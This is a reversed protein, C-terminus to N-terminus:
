KEIGSLEREYPEDTQDAALEFGDKAFRQDFMILVDRLDDDLKALTRSRVEHSAEEIKKALDPDKSADVYDHVMTQISELVAPSVFDEIGAFVAAIKNNDGRISVIEGM